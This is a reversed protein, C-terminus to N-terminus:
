AGAEKFVIKKGDWKSIKKFFDKLEKKRQAPIRYPQIVLKRFYTLKGNEVITKAEYTGFESSFSVPEKLPNKEIMYAPSVEYVFTDIETYAYDSKIEYTRNKKFKPRYTFRDLSNIPVFFRKGAVSAFRDSKFKFVLSGEPKSASCEHRFDELSINTVKGLTKKFWAKMEKDDNAFHHYRLLEQIVLQM